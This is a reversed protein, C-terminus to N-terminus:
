QPMTQGDQTQLFPKDETVKGGGVYLWLFFLAVIVLVVIGLDAMSGGNTKIKKM